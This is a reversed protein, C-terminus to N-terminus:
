DERPYECKYHVCGLQLKKVENVFNMRQGNDIPLKELRNFLARISDELYNRDHMHMCLYKHICGNCINTIEM